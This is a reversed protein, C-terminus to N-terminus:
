QVIYLTSTDSLKICGIIHARITNICTKIIYITYTRVALSCGHVFGFKGTGGIQTVREPTNWLYLYTQHFLQVHCTSDKTSHKDMSCVRMCTYRLETEHMRTNFMVVANLFHVKLTYKWEAIM